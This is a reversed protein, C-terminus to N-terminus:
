EHDAALAGPAARRQPVPLLGSVPQDVCSVRARVGAAAAAASERLANGEELRAVEYEDCRGGSTCDGQTSHAGISVPPHATLLSPALAIGIDFRQTTRASLATRPSRHNTASM